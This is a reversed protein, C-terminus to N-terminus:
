GTVERVTPAQPAAAPTIGATRLPQLYAYVTGYSGRYGEKTIEAYLQTIRCREQSRRHQWSAALLTEPSAARAFTRVTNYGLPLQRAITALSKGQDRM